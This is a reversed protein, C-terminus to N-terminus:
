RAATCGAVPQWPDTMGSAEGSAPDRLV